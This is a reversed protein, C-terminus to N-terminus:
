IYNMDQGPDIGYSRVAWLATPSAGDYYRIMNTGQNEKNYLELSKSLNRYESKMHRLNANVSWMIKPAKIIQYNANITYGTTLQEGMNKPVSTTGSSAPVSMYILLPDTTKVFYDLNM